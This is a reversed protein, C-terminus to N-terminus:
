FSGKSNSFSDITGGSIRKATFPIAGEEALAHLMTEGMSGKLGAAGSIVIVKDKLHLDM